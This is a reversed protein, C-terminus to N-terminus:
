IAEASLQREHEIPSLYGLNLHLRECNYFQDINGYLRNRMERWSVLKDTVPLERKIMAFVSEAPANDYSNGVRSM